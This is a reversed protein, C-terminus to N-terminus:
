EYFLLWNSVLCTPSDGSFTKLRPMDKALRGVDAAMDTPTPRPTSTENGPRPLVLRVLVGPPPRAQAAAKVVPTGPGAPGTAVRALDRLLGRPRPRLRPGVLGVPFVTGTVPDCPPVPRRIVTRRRVPRPPGATGVPRGTKPGVVGTDRRPALGARLGALAAGHVCFLITPRGVQALGLRGAVVTEGVQRLAPRPTEVPVAPTKGLGLTFLGTRPLLFVDPGTGVPRVPRVRPRPTGVRAPRGPRGDATAVEAM